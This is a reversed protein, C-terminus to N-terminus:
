RRMSGASRRAASTRRSTSAALAWRQRRRMTEVPFIEGEDWDRAHPMMEDRAFTRATAQFARQEESLEFDM